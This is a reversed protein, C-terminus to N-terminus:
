NGTVLQSLGPRIEELKKMLEDYVKRQTMQGNESRVFKSTRAM